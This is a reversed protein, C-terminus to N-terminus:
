VSTKTTSLIIGGLTWAAAALGAIPGLVPLWHVIVLIPVGILAAMLLAQRSVEDGERILRGVAIGAFLGSTLLVLLWLVFVVAAAPLGIVTIALLILLAPMAILALAGWGLSAQWRKNMTDTVSRMMHPAVLIMLAAGALAAALWYLLMGLREGPTPETSERSPM